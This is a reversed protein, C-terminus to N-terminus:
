NGSDDFIGREVSEWRPYMWMWQEPHRRIEDSLIENLDDASEQIDAGFPKGDRGKLPPYIKVDITIGDGSRICFIPIVDCGLRAALREPGTPTSAPFGLFPSVVGFEKADQDVPVAIFEGRKLASVMAKLDGAKGLAIVGASERLEKILDTIRRDRQDAGLANVPFGQHAVWAAGYEWNGIHATVLIAGRKSDAADRLYELGSYTVLSDIDRAAAPMRAFEAAASGFHRYSGRVIEEAREKSVGLIRECRGCAERFKVPTAKAVLLGLWGGLAVARKHPLMRVVSKFISLFRWIAPQGESM